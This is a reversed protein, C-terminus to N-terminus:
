ARAAKMASHVKRFQYAATLLQLECRVGHNGRLMWSYYGLTGRLFGFVTEVAHARKKYAAIYKPDKFRALVSSLQAHRTGVVLMRRKTKAQTLCRSASPCSRCDANAQYVRVTQGRSRREQVFALTAGEPCRYCDKGEDYTMEVQGMIRKRTTGAELSRRIDCATFSDPVCVEIGRGDVDAISEGSWYGSDATVMTVADEGASAVAAEVMPVLRSNDTEQTVGAAAILGNDVAVEFSHSERHRGDIGGHLMRADPDTLSLHRLGEAKAQEIAAATSEIRKRMRPTPLAARKKPEPSDEPQHRHARVRRVIDRMQESSPLEGMNTQCAAGEADEAVDVAACEKLIIELEQQVADYDRAKLISGPAANARLKTSDIYVRGMRKIGAEAAAAYLCSWVDNIEKSYSKRANCLTRYCPTDGRTLYLFPLAERCMREMQRSSRIGTCYAYILVKICLRLDFAPQGKGLPQRPTEIAAQVAAEVFRALHNEPLETVPDYGLLLPGPPPHPRFATM